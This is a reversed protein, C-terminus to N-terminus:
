SYRHPGGHHLSSLCAQSLFLFSAMARVLGVLEDGFAGDPYERAAAAISALLVPAYQLASAEFDPCM